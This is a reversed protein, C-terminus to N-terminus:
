APLVSPSKLFGFRPNHSIFHTRYISLLRPESHEVFSRIWGRQYASYFLNLFDSVSPCECDHYVRYFLWSCEERHSDWLTHVGYRLSREAAGWSSHTRSAVEAYLEKVQMDEPYGSELLCILATELRKSSKAWKCLEMKLLFLHICEVDSEPLPTFQQRNM